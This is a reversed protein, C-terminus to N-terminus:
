ERHIITTSSGCFPCESYNMSMRVYCTYCKADPSAGPDDYPPPLEYSLFNVRVQVGTRWFEAVTEQRKMRCNYIYLNPKGLPMPRFPTEGLEKKIKRRIMKRKWHDEVEVTLTVFYENRENFVDIKMMRKESEKARRNRDKRRSDDVRRRKYEKDGRNRDNSVDERRRDTEKARRNRKRKRCRNRSM